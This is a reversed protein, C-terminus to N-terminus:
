IEKDCLVQIALDESQEGQTAGTTGSHPDEVGQAENDGVDVEPHSYMWELDADEYMHTDDMHNTGQAMGEQSYPNHGANHDVQFVPRYEINQDTVIDQTDMLFQGSRPVPSPQVLHSGRARKGQSSM